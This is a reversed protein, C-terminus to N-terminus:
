EVPPDSYGDNAPGGWNTQKSVWDMGHVSLVFGLVFPLAATLISQVGTVPFGHAERWASWAFAIAWLLFVFWAAERKGSRGGIIYKTVFKLM